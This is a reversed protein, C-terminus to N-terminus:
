RWDLLEITRFRDVQLVLRPFVKYPRAIIRNVGCVDNLNGGATTMM